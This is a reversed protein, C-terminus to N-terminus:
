CNKEFHVQSLAKIIDANQTEEARHKAYVAFVFCVILGRRNIKPNVKNITVAITDADCTKLRDFMAKFNQCKKYYIDKCDELFPSYYSGLISGTEIYRQLDEIHKNM